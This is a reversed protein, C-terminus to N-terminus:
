LGQYVHWVNPGIFCSGIYRGDEPVPRGTGIVAFKCDMKSNSPDQEIWLTPTNNQEHVCVVRSGLPLEIKCVNVELPYKYITKM